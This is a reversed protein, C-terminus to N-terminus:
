SEKELPQLYLTLMPRDNNSYLLHITLPSLNNTKDQWLQPLEDWHKAQRDWAKRYRLPLLERIQQGNPVYVKGGRYHGVIGGSEVGQVIGKRMGIKDGPWLLLFEM